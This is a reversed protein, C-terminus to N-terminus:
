HSEQVHELANAVLDAVHRDVLRYRIHKGDRRSAVLREARLVKLRQSVMSLSDGVTGALESVCLEGAALVALIQLRGPDGMSRFIAAAREVVGGDALALQVSTHDKAVCTPELSDDM